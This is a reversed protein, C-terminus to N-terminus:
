PLKESESKEEAKDEDRQEVVQDKEGNLQEPSGDAGMVGLMGDLEGLLKDLRGELGDAAADAEDMQALLDMIAAEDLNSSDPLEVANDSNLSLRLSQFLPALPSDDPLTPITTNRPGRTIGDASASAQAPRTSSAASSSPALTSNLFELDSLSSM